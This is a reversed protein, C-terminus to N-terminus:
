ARVGQLFVVDSPEGARLRSHAVLIDLGLSPRRIKMHTEGWAKKLSVARLISDPSYQGTKDRYAISAPPM